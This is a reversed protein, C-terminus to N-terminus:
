VSSLMHLDYHRSQVYRIAYVTTNIVPVPPQLLNQEKHAILWRLPPRSILLLCQTQECAVHCFCRSDFQTTALECINKEYHRLSTEQYLLFAQIQMPLSM